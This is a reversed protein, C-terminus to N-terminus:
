LFSSLAFTFKCEIIKHREYHMVPPVCMASWHCTGLMWVASKNTACAGAIIQPLDNESAPNRFLLGPFFSARM